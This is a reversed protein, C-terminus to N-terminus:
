RRRETKSRIRDGDRWQYYYYEEGDIETVTASARSPVGNPYPIEGDAAASESERDRRSEAWAALDDAYAAVTRITETDEDALAELVARLEPDLSEPPSPRDADEM